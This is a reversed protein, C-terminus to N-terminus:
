HIICKTKMTFERINWFHVEVIIIFTNAWLIKKGEKVGSDMYLTSKDLM